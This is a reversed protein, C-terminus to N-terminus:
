EYICKHRSRESTWHTTSYYLPWKKLKSVGGRESSFSDKSPSCSRARPQYYSANVVTPPTGCPRAIRLNRYQFSFHGLVGLELICLSCLTLPQPQERSERRKGGELRAARAVQLICIKRFYDVRASERATQPQPGLDKKGKRGIKEGRHHGLFVVCASRDQGLDHVFDITFSPIKEMGGYNYHPM